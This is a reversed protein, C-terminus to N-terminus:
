YIMDFLTQTKEQGNTAQFTNKPKPVNKIIKLKKVIAM